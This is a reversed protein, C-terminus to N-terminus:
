FSHHGGSAGDSFFQLNYISGTMVMGHHQMTVMLIPYEQLQVYM